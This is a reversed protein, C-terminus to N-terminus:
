LVRGAAREAASLPLSSSAPSAAEESGAAAGDDAPEASSGQMRPMPHQTGPLPAGWSAIMSTISVSMRSDSPRCRSNRLIPEVQQMSRRYLTRGLM